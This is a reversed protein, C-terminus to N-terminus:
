QFMEESWVTKGKDEKIYIFGKKYEKITVIKSEFKQHDSYATIGGYSDGWSLYRVKVKQGPKYKPKKEKGLNKAALYNLYFWLVILGIVLIIIGFAVLVEQIKGWNPKVQEILWILDSELPLPIIYFLLVGGFAVFKQKITYIVWPTHIPKKKSLIIIFFLVELAILSFILWYLNIGHFNFIVCQIEASSSNFICNPNPQNILQFWFPINITIIFLVVFWWYDSWLEKITEKM